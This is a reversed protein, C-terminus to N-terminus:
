KQGTRGQGQGQGKPFSGSQTGIQQYFRRMPGQRSWRDNIGIVDILYAALVIASVFGIVVFFFNKKYSFDFKKLMRVGLGIGGVALLPIWLPFSGLMQELRWQGNPGHQRLLFFMLNILFVAGITLGAVGAVMSVSGVVFYWRPKMTIHEREIRSM